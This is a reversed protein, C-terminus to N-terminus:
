ALLLRHIVQGCLQKVKTNNVFKGGGVAIVYELHTVVGPRVRVSLLDPYYSTWIQSTEDFTSVKNTPSNTASLYGGIIALKGGIIHPTGYCHGSPPLQGWHDTNVDYIYVQHMANDVPSNGGAVYVKKDRVAVHAGFM